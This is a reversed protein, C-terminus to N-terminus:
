IDGQPKGRGQWHPALDDAKLTGRESALQPSLPDRQMTESSARIAVDYALKGAFQAKALFTEWFQGAMECQQGNRDCYTVTWHAATAAREYLAAQQEEDSPMVAVGLSLVVAIRFLSM